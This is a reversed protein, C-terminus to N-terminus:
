KSRIIIQKKIIKEKDKENAKNVADVLAKQAKAANDLDLKREEVHADFEARKTLLTGVDIGLALVMMVMANLIAVAAKAWAPMDNKNDQENM